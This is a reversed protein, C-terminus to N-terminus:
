AYNIKKVEVIALARDNTIGQRQKVRADITNHFRIKKEISSKQDQIDKSFGYHIRRDHGMYVQLINLQHNESLHNVVKCITSQIKARYHCRAAKNTPGKPMEIGLKEIIEDCTPMENTIPHGNEDFFLCIIDNPNVKYKANKTNYTEEYMFYDEVHVIKRPKYM